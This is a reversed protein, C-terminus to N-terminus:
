RLRRQVKARLRVSSRRGEGIFRNVGSVRGLPVLRGSRMALAAMYSFVHLALWAGELAKNRKYWAHASPPASRINVPLTITSLRAM